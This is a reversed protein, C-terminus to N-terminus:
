FKGEAQNCEDIFRYIGELGEFDESCHVGSNNSYMPPSLTRYDSSGCGPKLLPSAALWPNEEYEDMMFGDALLREGEGFSTADDSSARSRLTGGPSTLVDQPAYPFRLQAHERAAATAALKEEDYACFDRDQRVM